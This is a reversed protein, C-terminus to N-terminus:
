INWLTWEFLDFYEDRIIELCRERGITIRPKSEWMSISDESIHLSLVFQNMKMVQIETIKNCYNINIKLNGIFESTYNQKSFYEEYISRYTNNM